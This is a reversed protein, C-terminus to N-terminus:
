RLQASSWGSVTLCSTVIQSFPDRTASFVAGSVHAREVVGEYSCGVERSEACCVFLRTAYCCLATPCVCHSWESAKKDATAVVLMAGKLDMSYAKESLNVVAAPNSTRMDWFKVTRDRDDFRLLALSVNLLSCVYMRLAQATVSVVVSLACSDRLYRQGVARTWLSFVRLMSLLECGLVCYLLCDGLDRAFRPLM